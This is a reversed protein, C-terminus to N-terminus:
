PLPRSLDVRFSYGHREFGLAEYFALSREQDSVPIVVLQIQSIRSTTVRMM